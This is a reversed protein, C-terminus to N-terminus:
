HAGCREESPEGLHFFSSKSTGIGGCSAQETNRSISDYFHLFAARIVPCRKGAAGQQVPKFWVSSLTGSGFYIDARVFRSITNM